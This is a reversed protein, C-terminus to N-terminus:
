KFDNKLGRVLQEGFEYKSLRKEIYTWDCSTGKLYEYISLVRKTRGLITDVFFSEELPEVNVQYGDFDLKLAKDLIVDDVLLNYQFKGKIVLDGVIEVLVGDIKYQGFTSAFKDNESYLMNKLRYPSLVKDMELAIRNTTLIDIDSTTILLGNYRNAMGGAVIWHNSVRGEKFMRVIQKFVLHNDTSM